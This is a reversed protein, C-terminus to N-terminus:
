YFNKWKNASFSPFFSLWKFDFCKKEDRKHRFHTICIRMLVAICASKFLQGGQPGRLMTAVIILKCLKTQVRFQIALNPFLERHVSQIALQQLGSLHRYSPRRASLTMSSMVPKFNLPMKFIIKKINLGVVIISHAAGFLPSSAWTLGKTFDLEQSFM